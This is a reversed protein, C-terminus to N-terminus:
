NHFELDHCKEEFSKLKRWGAKFMMRVIQIRTLGYHKLIKYARAKRLNKYDKLHILEFILKPTIDPEEQIWSELREEPVLRDCSACCDCKVQM